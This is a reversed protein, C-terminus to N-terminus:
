EEFEEVHYISVDLMTKQWLEARAGMKQCLESLFDKPDPIQDWVQPLYTARHRGSQLIVGDEHPHLLHPLEEPTSYPLPVPPTLRSIEIHISPLELVSIPPFRYDETAAQAARTQVDLALPQYAELSGICGRLRGKITLTVFSAGLERLAAPLNEMRLLTQPQNHVAETIAQRAIRMRLMREENSLRDPM